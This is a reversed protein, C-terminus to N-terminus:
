RRKQVGGGAWGMGWGGVGASVFNKSNFPGLPVYEWKQIDRASWDNCLVYGFIHDSAGAPSVGAGGLETGPGIFCGKLRPLPPPLM